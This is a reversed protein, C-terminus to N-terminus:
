DLFVAVVDIRMDSAIVVAVVIVKEFLVSRFLPFCIVLPLSSILHSGFAGVEGWVSVIHPFYYSM